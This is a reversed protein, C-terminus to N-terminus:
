CSGEWTARTRAWALRIGFDRLRVGAAYSLVGYLGLCALALSAFGFVSVMGTTVTRTQRSRAVWDEMTRVEYVAQGPNEQRIQEIVAQTYSSPDRGVGTEETRIESGANTAEFADPLMANSNSVPRVALWHVREDLGQHAIGM